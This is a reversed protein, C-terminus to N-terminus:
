VLALVTNPFREQLCLTLSNQQADRSSEKVELHRLKSATPVSQGGAKEPVAMIFKQLHGPACLM